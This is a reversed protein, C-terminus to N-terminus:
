INWYLYKFDSAVVQDFKLEEKYKKDERIINPDREEDDENQEDDVEDNVGRTVFRFLIVSYQYFLFYFGSINTYFFNWNFDLKYHMFVM